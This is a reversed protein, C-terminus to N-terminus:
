KHLSTVICYAHLFMRFIIMGVLANSASMDLVRAELPCNVYSTLVRPPPPNTFHQCFRVHPLPIQGIIVDAFFSIKSCNCCICLCSYRVKSSKSKFKNQGVHNKITGFHANLLYRSAGVKKSLFKTFNTRLFPPPISLDSRM